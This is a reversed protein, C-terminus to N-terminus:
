FCVQKPLNAYGLNISIGENTDHCTPAMSEKKTRTILTKGSTFTEPDKGKGNWCNERSGSTKTVFSAEIKHGAQSKFRREFEQEFAKVTPVDYNIFHIEQLESWPVTKCFKLAASVSVNACLDEPFGSSIAPIAVSQYQQVAILTNEVALNLADKATEQKSHLEREGIYNVANQWRPGVAHVIRQCNMKGAGTIAVDGDALDGYKRIHEDCEYQIVKGGAQLIAGAVGGILSLQNNAANVIVDVKHKTIDGQYVCIRKGQQTKFSCILRNQDDDNEPKHKVPIEEEISAEVDELQNIIIVSLENEVGRIVDKIFGKQFLKRVGPRQSIIKDKKVQGYVAKIQEVATRLGLQTGTILIAGDSQEITVLEKQLSEKIDKLRDKCHQFIFRILGMSITMLKKHVANDNLFKILEEQPESIDIGVISLNSLNGDIKQIEVCYSEELERTFSSGKDSQLLTRTGEDLLIQKDQMANQLASVARDTEEKSLSTISVECRDPIVTIVANVSCSKLYAYEKDVGSKTGLLNRNGKSIKMTRSCANMVKMLLFMKVKEIKDEQGIIMLGGSQVEVQVM